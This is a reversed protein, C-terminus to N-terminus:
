TLSLDNVNINSCRGGPSCAISAVVDDTGTGTISSLADARTIILFIPRCSVCKNFWVDEIYTNSPYEACEDEDTFYCQTTLHTKCRYRPYSQTLM